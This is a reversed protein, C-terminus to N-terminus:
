LVVQILQDDFSQDLVVEEVHKVLEELIMNEAIGLRQHAHGAITLDSYHMFNFM